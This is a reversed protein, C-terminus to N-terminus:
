FGFLKFTKPLFFLWLAHLPCDVNAVLVLAQPLLVNSQKLLLCIHKYVHGLVLLSKFALPDLLRRSCSLWLAYAPYDIDAVAV